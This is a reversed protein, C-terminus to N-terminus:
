LINNLSEIIKQLCYYLQMPIYTHVLAIVLGSDPTCQYVTFHKHLREVGVWM